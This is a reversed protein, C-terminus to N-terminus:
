LRTNIVFSTKSQTQFPNALFFCMQKFVCSVSKPISTANEATSSHLQLEVGGGGGGGPPYTLRNQMAQYMRHHFELLTSM